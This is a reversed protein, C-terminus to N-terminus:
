RFDGHGERNLGGIIGIAESLAEGDEEACAMIGMLAAEVLESHIRVWEEDSGQPAGYNILVFSGEALKALAGAAALFDDNGAANRLQGFAQGNARMIPVVVTSDYPEQGFVNLTALVTLILVTTAIRKM